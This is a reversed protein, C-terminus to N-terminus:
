PRPDERDPDPYNPCDWNHAGNTYDCLPCIRSPRPTARITQVNAAHQREWEDRLSRLTDPNAGRRACQALWYRAGTDDIAHALALIAGALEPTVPQTVRYAGAPHLARVPDVPPQLDTGRWLPVDLQPVRTLRAAVDAHRIARGVAIAAPVAIAAWVAAATLFM